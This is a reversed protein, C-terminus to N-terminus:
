NMSFTSGSDDGLNVYAISKTELKKLTIIMRTKLLLLPM